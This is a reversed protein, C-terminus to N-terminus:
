NFLNDSKNKKNKNEEIKKDINQQSIMEIFEDTASDIFLISGTEFTFYENSKDHVETSRLILSASEGNDVTACYFILHINYSSTCFKKGEQWLVKSSIRSNPIEKNVDTKNEKAIQKWENFKLMMNRLSELQQQDIEIWSITYSSNIQLYYNGDYRLRCERDYANGNEIKICDVKGLTIEDAYIKCGILAIALIIVKKYMYKM